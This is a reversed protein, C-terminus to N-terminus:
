SNNSCTHSLHRLDTTTNEEGLFAVGVHKSSNISRYNKYM